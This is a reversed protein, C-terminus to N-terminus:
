ADSFADIIKKTTKKYFTTKRNCSAELVLQACHKSDRMHAHFKTKTGEINNISSIQIPYCFLTHHIQFGSIETGITTTVTSIMANFKPRTTTVVVCFEHHDPNEIPIQQKM